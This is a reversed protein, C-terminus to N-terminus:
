TLVSLLVAEYVLFYSFALFGASMTRIDFARKFILSIVALNWILLMINIQLAIPDVPGGEVTAPLLQFVPVTVLSIILNVGILASMTQFLRERRQILMLAVQTVTLLIMVEIFIQIVISALSRHQGLLIYGVAVYAVLSLAIVQPYVPLNSPSSRFLCMLGYHKLSYIWLNLLQSM